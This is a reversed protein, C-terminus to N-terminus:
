QASSHLYFTNTTPRDMPVLVNLQPDYRFPSYSLSEMIRTVNEYDSNEAMVIPKSREITARLGDMVLAEAGEVDVKIIDPALNQDDGREIRCQVEALSMAGRELFKQKVWPKEYYEKSISAEEIFHVGNVYPIHLTFGGPDKGLGHDHVLNEGPITRAVQELSLKLLPNAEYSVIQAHPFLIRFSVISQGLNAGIDMIVKVRDAFLCFGYFDTDHVTKDAWRSLIEETSNSLNM